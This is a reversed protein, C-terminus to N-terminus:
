QHRKKEFEIDEKIGKILMLVLFIVAWIAIFMFLAMFVTFAIQIIKRITEKDLTQIFILISYIPATILFSTMMNKRMSSNKEKNEDKAM